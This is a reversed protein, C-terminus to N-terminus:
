ISVYQVRTPTGVPVAWLGVAEGAGATPSTTDVYQVAGLERMAAASPADTDTGVPEGGPISAAAPAEVDVPADATVPADAAVAPAYAAVSASDAAAASVQAAGPAAGGGTSRPTAANGQRRLTTLRELLKKRLRTRVHAKQADLQARVNPLIGVLEYIRSSIVHAEVAPLYAIAGDAVDLGEAPFSRVVEEFTLRDLRYIDCHTRTRVSFRERDKDVTVTQPFLGLLNFCSGVESVYFPQGESHMLHEQTPRRSPSCAGGLLAAPAHAVTDVAHQVFKLSVKANHQASAVTSAVTAGAAQQASAAMTRSRQRAPSGAKWRSSSSPSTSPQKLPSAAGKNPSNTGLVAGGAGPDVSLVHAGLQPSEANRPVRRIRQLTGRHVFYM